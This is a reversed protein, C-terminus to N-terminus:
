RWDRGAKFRYALYILPLYAIMLGLFSNAPNLFIWIAIPLLWFINIVWINLLVKLHGYQKAAHQYAHSCHAQYWKERRLFRTILTLTADVIFVAFVILGILLFAPSVQSYILILLAIVFGLFGSGIDGMFIKASPWNLILFGLSSAALSFGLWALDANVVWMMCALSLTVFVAESGAIGDIGDMFNFFNLSWVLFFLSSVVAITGFFGITPLDRLFYLALLAAGLHVLLRWRAALPQHDDWFGIGAVPLGALFAYFWDSEMAGAFYLFLVAAYFGVVIGLGGGRPTPLQHSSRQNPIDLLHKLAYFRVLLTVGFSILIVTILLVAVM